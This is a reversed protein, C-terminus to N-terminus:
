HKVVSSVSGAQAFRGTLGDSLAGEIRVRCMHGKQVGEGSLYVRLYERTLGYGARADRTRRGEVLVEVDRGIFRGRYEDATEDAAARVLARHREKIGPRIPDGLKWAATGPRPSYPFIHARSFAAHKVMAVTNHIAEEDEGPFGVMIDTTISADPMRARIRQILRRYGYSGLHIGCLVIEVYGRSVLATAEDLIEARARSRSRGRALPVICYSCRSDCGDQIKLFARTHHSFGTISCAGDECGRGIIHHLRQKLENGLVYKVGPIAAFAAASVEACCGTVIM